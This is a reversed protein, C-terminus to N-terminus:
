FAKGGISKFELWWECFWLGRGKQGPDKKTYGDLFTPFAINPNNPAKVM